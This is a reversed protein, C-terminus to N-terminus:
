SGSPIPLPFVNGGAERDANVSRNRGQHKAEYLARDARRYADLVDGRGIHALGISATVKLGPPLPEGGMRALDRRLRDATGLASQPDLGNLAVAFEEGGVRGVLHTAGLGQQLVRGVEAIVYDGVLHGHADNIRKFHDIDLVGLTLDSGGAKAKDLAAFFGGRNMLGTQLDTHALAEFREKLQFLRLNARALFGLFLLSMFAAILTTQIFSPCLRDPQTYLNVVADIGDTVLVIGLTAAVVKTWMERRTRIVSLSSLLHPM